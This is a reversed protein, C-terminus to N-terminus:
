FVGIVMMCNGQAFLYNVTGIQQFFQIGLCVVDSVTATMTPSGALTTVLSFSVPTTINLATATSNAEANLMNLSPDTPEYHRSIANYTYDSVVGLAAILQFHTAGEPMEIFSSPLFAPITITAETRAANISTTYPAEFVSAFHVYKNFEFNEL